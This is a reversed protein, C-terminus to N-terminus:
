IFLFLDMQYIVRINKLIFTYFRKCNTKRCITVWRYPVIINFTEMRYFLQHYHQIYMISSYKLFNKHNIQKEWNFLRKVKEYIFYVRLFYQLRWANRVPSKLSHRLCRQTWFVCKQFYIDDNTQPCLLECTCELWHFKNDPMFNENISNYFKPLFQWQTRRDM